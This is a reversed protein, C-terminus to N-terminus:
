LAGRWGFRRAQALCAAHMQSRKMDSSGDNLDFDTAVQAAKWLWVERAAANIDYAEAPAPGADQWTV